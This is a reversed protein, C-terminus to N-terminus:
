YRDYVPGVELLYNFGVKFTQVAQTTTNSCFTDGVGVSAPAVGCVGVSHNLGLWLYEAKISWRPNFVYELGGGWAWGFIDKKGTGPGLGGADLITSEITSLAFGRKGYFLV